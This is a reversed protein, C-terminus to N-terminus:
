ERVICVKPISFGESWFIGSSLFNLNIVCIYRCILFRKFEERIRVLKCVCVCVGTRNLHDLLDHDNVEALAMRTKYGSRYTVTLSCIRPKVSM